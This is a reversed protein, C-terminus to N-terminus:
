GYLVVRLNKHPSCGVFCSALELCDCWERFSTLKEKKSKHIGFVTM